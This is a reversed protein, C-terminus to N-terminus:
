NTFYSKLECENALIKYENGNDTKILLFENDSIWEGDFHFSINGIYFDKAAMSDIFLRCKEVGNRSIKFYFDYKYEDANVILTGTLDKNLKNTFHSYPVDIIFNSDIITSRIHELKSRDFRNDKEALQLLGTHIINLRLNNKENMGKENWNGETLFHLGIGVKNEYKSVTEELDDVIQVISIFSYFDLEEKKLFYSYIFNIYLVSIGGIGDNVTSGLRIIEFEM